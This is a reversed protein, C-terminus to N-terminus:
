PKRQLRNAPRAPVQFAPQGHRELENCRINEDLPERGATWGRIQDIPM